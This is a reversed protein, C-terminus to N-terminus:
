GGKRNQACNLENQTALLNTYKKTQLNRESIIKAEVVALYLKSNFRDFWEAKILIELM